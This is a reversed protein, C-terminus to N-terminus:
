KAAHSAADARAVALMIACEMRKKFLDCGKEYVGNDIYDAVSGGVHAIVKFRDNGELVDDGFSPTGWGTIAFDIDALEAKLEEQTYNRGLPNYRVNFNEALYERVDPTLFTEKPQGDPITVLVNYKM